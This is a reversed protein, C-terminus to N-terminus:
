LNTFTAHRTDHNPSTGGNAGREKDNMPTVAHRVPDAAAQAAQRGAKDILHGLRKSV